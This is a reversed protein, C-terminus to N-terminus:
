LMKWRNYKKCGLCPEEPDSDLIDALAQIYRHKCNACCRMKKIMKDQRQVVALLQSIRNAADNCVSSIVVNGTLTIKDGNEDSCKRLAQVLQKDYDM